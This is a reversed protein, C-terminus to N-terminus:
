LSEVSPPLDIGRQRADEFFRRALVIQEQKKREPDDTNAVDDSDGDVEMRDSEDQATSVMTVPAQLDGIWLAIMGRLRLLEGYDSYPPSTMLQDLRSAIEQADKLEQKRVSDQEAATLTEEDRAAKAEAQVIYIWLGFMAPYFDLAGTSKARTIDFPYQLILRDYYDKADQFGQKTFWLPQSKNASSSDAASDLVQEGDRMTSNRERAIQARRHLLIEAGLGWRGDTRIDVAEGGFEDRLIMGWARSARVYDGELLCRHFITSMVAFHQTRLSTHRAFSEPLYLPPNLNQLEEEANIYKRRTSKGYSDSAHPYPARPLPDDPGLGAFQRQFSDSSIPYTQSALGAASSINSPGDKFSSVDAESEPFESESGESTPKRKRSTLTSQQLQWQHLPLSFFSM